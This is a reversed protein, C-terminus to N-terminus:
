ETMYTLIFSGLMRGNKWFCGGGDGWVVEYQLAHAYTDPHTETVGTINGDPAFLVTVEKM